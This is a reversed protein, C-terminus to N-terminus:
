RARQSVAAAANAHVPAANAHVPAANAHEDDEISDQFEQATSAQDELSHVGTTVAPSSEHDELSHVGTTVAPSSKTVSSSEQKNFQV